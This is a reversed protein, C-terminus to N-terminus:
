LGLGQIFIYNCAERNYPFFNRKSIVTLPFILNNWKVFCIGKSNIEFTYNDGEEEYCLEYIPLIPILM